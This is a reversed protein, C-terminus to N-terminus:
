VKEIKFCGKGDFSPMEKADFCIEGIKNPNM